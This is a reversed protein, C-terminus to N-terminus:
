GQTLNLGAAKIQSVTQSQASQLAADITGGKGLRGWPDAFDAWTSVMLPGWTWGNRVTAAAQKNTAYIDQGGYFGNDFAKQAVDAMAPDAPLASSAGGAVRIAVADANTSMWSAFEVAAAVHTSNKSVAYSSGGMTGAAPTGDWTPVPAVGWKGSSGPAMPKLYAGEYPGSIMGIVKDDGIDATLAPSTSLYTSVQGADILGQWYASVKRTAADTFNVKWSDGATGFWQAGAQWSLAAFLSADDTPFNVLHAKPDAKQLAAADAKFQDWTTPVTLHYKQFLDKRYYFVTPEIDFPVAWTKGGLTTLQMANGLASSTAGGVASSIDQVAGQSVFDPLEAYEVNFLDPGNGAKIAAFDKAYGSPGSTTKSLTVHVDKHTRNFEDVVKDANKTWTWFSIEVPKGPAADATGSSKASSGCATLAVLSLSACTAVALARRRSSRHTM